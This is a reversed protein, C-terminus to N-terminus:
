FPLAPSLGESGLASQALLERFVKSPQVHEDMTMPKSFSQRRVHEADYNLVLLETAEPLKM